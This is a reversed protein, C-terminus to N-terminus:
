SMVDALVAVEIMLLVANTGVEGVDSLVLAIGATLVLEVALEDLPRKVTGSGLGSVLPGRLPLAVVDIRVLEPWVITIVAVDDGLGGSELVMILETGLTPDVDNVAAGSGEVGSDVGTLVVNPDEESDLVRGIDDSAEDFLGIESDEIGGLDAICGGVPDGEDETEPTKSDEGLVESAVKNPLTGDVEIGVDLRPNGAAPELEENDILM